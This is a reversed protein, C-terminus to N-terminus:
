TARGCDRLQHPKFVVGPDPRRVGSALGLSELLQIMWKSPDFSFRRWGHFAWTPQAHHNSHYGEGLALIQVVINNRSDDALYANGASDRAHNGWVHCVSNVSWTIHLVLVVRM